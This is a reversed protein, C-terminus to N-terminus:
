TTLQMCASGPGHGTSVRHQTGHLTHAVGAAFPCWPRSCITDSLVALFEVIHRLQNWHQEQNRSMIVHVCVNTQLSCCACTLVCDIFKQRCSCARSKTHTQAQMFHKHYKQTKAVWEFLRM